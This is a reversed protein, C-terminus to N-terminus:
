GDTVRQRRQVGAHRCTGGRQRGQQALTRAFMRVPQGQAVLITADPPTHAPGLVVGLHHVQRKKQARAAQTHAIADGDDTVAAGAPEEGVQRGLRQAADGHADVRGIGPGFQLVDHTVAAGPDHDAAVLFLHVLHQVGQTFLATQWVQLQNEDHIGFTQPM